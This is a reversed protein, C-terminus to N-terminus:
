FTKLPALNPRSLCAPHQERQHFGGGFAPLRGEDDSHTRLLNGGYRHSPYALADHRPSVLVYAM